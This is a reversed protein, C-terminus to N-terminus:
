KKGEPTEDKSADEAGPEPQPADRRLRPGMVQFVPGGVYSFYIKRQSHSIFMRHARLFDLGLLMEPNLGSLGFMEGFRLRVNKIEEDGLRFTNFVGVYDDVEDDGVGSSKGAHKVGPSEPTLGARAAARETLISTSAGTDLIARVEKGNILVNLTIVPDDKSFRDMDVENFDGGWYALTTDDCNRPQFLTVKNHAIDIDLDFKALFNEGLVGFIKENESLDHNSAVPFDMHHVTWDGLRLDDIRAEQVNILGGVGEMHLGPVLKPRLELRQAAPKTIMGYAAGTDMMLYGDHGNVSVDLLPMNSDMTLNFTGVHLLQCRQKDEGAQARGHPGSALCALTLSLTAALSRFAGRRHTTM